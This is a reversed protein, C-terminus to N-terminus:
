STGSSSGPFAGGFGMPPLGLPDQPQLHAPIPLGPPAELRSGTPRPDQFLPPLPLPLPPPLFHFDVGGVDEDLFALDVPPPGFADDELGPPAHFRDAPGPLPSGFGIGFSPAPPMAAAEAAAAAAFLGAVAPNMTRQVPAPAMGFPDVLGSDDVAPNMTRPVLPPSMGFPDALGSDDMDWYGEVRGDHVGRNAMYEVDEATAWEPLESGESYAEDEVCDDEPYGGYGGDYDGYDEHYGDTAWYAEAAPEQQQARYGVEPLERAWAAHSAEPGAQYVEEVPPPPPPVASPTAPAAPPPPPPPPRLPPKESKNLLSVATGQSSGPAAMASIDVSTLGEEEELTSKDIPDGTPSSALKMKNAGHPRAGLAQCLAVRIRARRVDNRTPPPAQPEGTGRAETSSSAASQHAAEEKKEALARMFVVEDGSGADQATDQEEDEAKTGADPRSEAPGTSSVAKTKPSPLVVLGKLLEDEPLLNAAVEEDSSQARQPSGAADLDVVDEAKVIIRRLAARFPAAEDSRFENPMLRAAVTVLLALQALPGKKGKNAELWSTLITGLRLCWEWAVPKTPRPRSYRTAEEETVGAGPLADKFAGSIKSAHELTSGRSYLSLQMIWAAKHAAETRVGETLPTRKRAHYLAAVVSIMTLYTLWQHDEFAVADTANLAELLRAQCIKMLDDMMQLDPNPSDEAVLLSHLLCGVAATARQVNLAARISGGQTRIKSAVNGLAGEPIENTRSLQLLWSLLNERGTLFPFVCLLARFGLLVARVTQGTQFSMMALQNYAQGNQPCFELAEAYLRTAMKKCEEPDAIGLNARYRMIDAIMVRVESITKLRCQKRWVNEGTVRSPEKAEFEENNQVRVQLARACVRLFAEAEDLATTAEEVLNKLEEAKPSEGSSAEAKPSGASHEETFKKVKGSKDKIVDFLMKRMNTSERRRVFPGPLENMAVQYSILENAVEKYM